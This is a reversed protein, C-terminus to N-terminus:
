LLQLNSNNMRQRNSLVIAICFLIEGLDTQILDYYRQFGHGTGFISGACVISKKGIEHLMNEGRCERVWKADYGVDKEISLPEEELILDYKYAHEQDTAM